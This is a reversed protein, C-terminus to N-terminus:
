NLYFAIVFIYHLSCWAFLKPITCVPHLKKPTFYKFCIFVSFILKPNSKVPIIKSSITLYQTKKFCALLYNHLFINYYFEM